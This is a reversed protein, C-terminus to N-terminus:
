PGPPRAVRMLRDGLYARAGRIAILQGDKSFRHMAERDRAVVEAEIVAPDLRPEGGTIKNMGEVLDRLSRGTVFDEGHDLFARVPGPIKGGFRSTVMARRDRGTLDPNQESGSLAFERAIIKRT